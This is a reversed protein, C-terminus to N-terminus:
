KSKTLKLEAMKGLTEAPPSIVPTQERNMRCAIKTVKPKIYDFLEKLEIWGDSDLDAEGRLGKLFFYTFLGHKAEPYFSAIQNETAATLVVINGSALMPNEVSIYVPRTGKAMVSRGGAGCFCSDIVVIIEKALLKDLSAYLSDLPYCTKEPYNPDGDWPVLYAKNGKLGPAGHGAYYILLTSDKSVNNKLWSEFYKELDSKLARENLLTIINEEPFGMTNILYKRVTQADNQAFEAKPLDRYEEIGIVIAWANQRRFKCNPPKDIETGLKKKQQKAVPSKPIEKYAMTKEEALEAYIPIDNRIKELIIEFCKAIPQKEIEEEILLHSFFDKQISASATYRKSFEEGTLTVELQAAFHWSWFLAGGFPATICELIFRATSRTEGTVLKGEIMIDADPTAPYSVSSFIGSNRLHKAFQFTLAESWTKFGQPKYDLLYSHGGKKVEFLNVGVKLPVSKRAIFTESIPLRSSVTLTCGYVLLTMAVLMIRVTYLYKKRVTGKSTHYCSFTTCRQYYIRNVSFSLRGVEMEDQAASLSEKSKELWYYIVERLNAQQSM